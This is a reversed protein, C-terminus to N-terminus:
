AMQDCVVGTRANAQKNTNISWIDTIDQKIATDITPWTMSQPHEENHIGYKLNVSLHGHNSCTHEM